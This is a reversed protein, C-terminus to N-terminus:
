HYLLGFRIRMCKSVGGGSASTLSRTSVMSHDLRLVFTSYSIHHFCTTFFISLVGNRLRDGMSKMRQQGLLCFIRGRLGHYDDKTNELSLSAGLGLYFSGLGLGYVSAHVIYCVARFGWLVVSPDGRGRFGSQIRHVPWVRGM